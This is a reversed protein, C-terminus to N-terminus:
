KRIESKKYSELNPNDGNQLCTYQAALLYASCMCEVFVCSHNSCEGMTCEKQTNGFTLTCPTLYWISEFAHEWTLGESLCVWSCRLGAVSSVGRNQGREQIWVSHIVNFNIGVMVKRGAEHVVPTHNEENLIFWECKASSWLILLLTVPHKRM